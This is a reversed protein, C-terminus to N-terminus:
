CLLHAYDDTSLLLSNFGFASNLPWNYSRLLVRVFILLLELIPSCVIDPIFNYLTVWFLLGIDLIMMLDYKFVALAAVNRM